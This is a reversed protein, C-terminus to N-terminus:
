LNYAKFPPLSDLSFNVYSIIWTSRGPLVIVSEEEALKMCFDMDDNIGELLSLNLKVQLSFSDYVSPDRHKVKLINIISTLLWIVRVMCSMSGEPKQPCTVCPIEKLRNYCVDADERLLNIITSFFGNTTRELIQPLAGQYM